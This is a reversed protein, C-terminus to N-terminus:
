VVEGSWGRKSMRTRRPPMRATDDCRLSSWHRMMKFVAYGKPYPGLRLSRSSLELAILIRVPFFEAKKKGRVEEESLREM